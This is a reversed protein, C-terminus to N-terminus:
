RGLAVPLSALPQCDSSGEMDSIPIVWVLREVSVWGSSASCAAAAGAAAFSPLRIPVGFRKRRSSQSALM